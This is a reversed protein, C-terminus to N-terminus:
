EAFRAEPTRLWRIIRILFLCALLGGCIDGVPFSLWVGNLGLFRPLFFVPLFMFFVQRLLSLLLSEKAKGLGQLAANTVVPLAFFVIGLYSMRIGPVTVAILEPDSTFMRVFLSTFIEAVLFSVVYFGTALKLAYKLTHIVRGPKGAGYNYGVIPQAAEGIALAPLFIMSDLSFFIGLASLAIDGGYLKIMQNMVAMYAVFSLEVIFPASGVSCIRKVVSFKPRLIYYLRIRLPSEKMFFYALGMATALSQAVVTGLAAGEVGMGMKLIFLADLAVNSLAGLMQTGMAYRPSGCARIFSNLGGGMLAFPGGILIIRLYARAVPLVAESAGSYFLLTDIGTFAMAIGVAGVLSLMAVAHALAQEAKHHKEAGRLISVRSAGGVSILLTCAFMLLMTPFSTSIAALGVPGVAHGVFIRDVINYVAGALMGLVAPLAFSAILKPIRETGMDLTPGESFKIVKMGKM